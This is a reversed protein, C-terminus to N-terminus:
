ASDPANRSLRETQKFYNAYKRLRSYVDTVFLLVLTIASTLRLFILSKEAYNFTYFLFCTTLTLHDRTERPFVRNLSPAPAISRLFAIALFVATFSFFAFTSSFSFYRPPPAPSLLLLGAHVISQDQCIRGGRGGGEKMPFEDVAPMARKKNGM